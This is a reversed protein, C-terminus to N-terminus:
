HILNVVLDREISDKIDSLPISVNNYWREDNASDSTNPKTLLYKEFEKPSLIRKALAPSMLNSEIYNQIESISLRRGNILGVETLEDVVNLITKSSYAGPVNITRTTKKIRTKIYFKSSLGSEGLGQLADITSGDINSDFLMLEHRSIAIMPNLEDDSYSVSRTDPTQMVLRMAGNQDRGFRTADVATKFVIHKRSPVNAGSSSDIMSPLQTFIIVENRHSFNRFDTDALVNENSILTCFLMIFFIYNKMSRM